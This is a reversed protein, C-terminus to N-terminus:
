YKMNYSHSLCSADSQQDVPGYIIYLGVRQIQVKKRANWIAIHFDIQMLTNTAEREQVDLLRLQATMDEIDQRNAELRRQLDEVRERGLEEQMCVERLHARSEEVSRELEKRQEEQPGIHRLVRVHGHLAVVWRSLSECARSKARVVDPQFEPTHVIASLKRFIEDSVRSRDYFEM